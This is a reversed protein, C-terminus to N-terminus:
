LFSVYAVVGGRCSFSCDRLGSGTAARHCEAWHRKFCPRSHLAPSGPRSMFPSLVTAAVTQERLEVVRMRRPLPLRQSLLSSRVDAEPGGGCRGASSDPARLACRGSYLPRENTLFHISWDSSFTGKYSQDPYIRYGISCGKAREVCEALIHSSFDNVTGVNLASEPYLRPRTLTGRILSPRVRVNQRPRTSSRGVSPPKAVAARQLLAVHRSEFARYTSNTLCADNFHIVREGFYGEQRRGSDSRRLQHVRCDLVTVVVTAYPWRFSM